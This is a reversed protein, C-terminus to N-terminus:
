RAKSTTPFTKPAREGPLPTSSSLRDRSQRQPANSPVPRRKGKNGIGTAAKLAIPQTGSVVASGAALSGPPGVRRVPRGLPAFPLLKLGELFFHISDQLFDGSEAFCTQSAPLAACQFLSRAPQPAAPLPIPSRFLSRRVEAREPGPRLFGESLGASIASVRAPSQWCAILRTVGRLAISLRRYKRLFYTNLPEQLPFLRGPHRGLPWAKPLSQDFEDLDSEHSNTGKAPRPWHGIRGPM